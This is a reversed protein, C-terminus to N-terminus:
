RIKKKLTNIIGKLVPTEGVTYVLGDFPFDLKYEIGVIRLLESCNLVSVSTGDASFDRTKEFLGADSLRVRTGPALIGSSAYYKDRTYIQLGDSDDIPVPTSDNWRLHQVEAVSMAEMTVSYTKHDKVAENVREKAEAYLLNGANKVCDTNQLNRPNWGLLVYRDDKCPFLTANPLVQGYNDNPIVCIVKNAGASDKEINADFEMGSLMGSNFQVKLTQGTLLWSEKIGDPENALIGTTPVTSDNLIFYEYYEKKKTGDKFETEIYWADQKDNETPWIRTRGTRYNYLTQTRDGSSSAVPLGNKIEVSPYFNEDVDVKEVIQFVQLNSYGDADVYNIIEDGSMMRLRRETTENSFGQRAGINEFYAALWDSNEKKYDDTTLLTGTPVTDEFIFIVDTKTDTRGFVTMQYVDGTRRLENDLTYLSVNARANYERTFKLYPKFVVYGESGSDHSAQIECVLIFDMKNPFEDELVQSFDLTLPLTTNEYEWILIDEGADESWRFLKLKVNTVRTGQGLHSEFEIGSTMDLKVPLNGSYPQETSFNLSFNFSKETQSTYRGVLPMDIEDYFQAVDQEETYNWMTVDTRITQGGHSFPWAPTESGPDRKTLTLIKGYTDPINQTSGYLRLRTYYEKESNQPLINLAFKEANMKDGRPSSIVNGKQQKDLGTLKHGLTGMRILYNGSDDFWWECNYKDESKLKDLGELISIGEYEIFKYDLALNRDGDRAVFDQLDQEHISGAVSQGESSVSIVPYWFFAVTGQVRQPIAFGIADINNQLIDAHGQLNQTYKWKADYRVPKTSHEIDPVYALMATYNGLLKYYADFQVEYDYGGTATNYTPMYNSTLAFANGYDEQESQNFFDNYLVFDGVNLYVPEDLSFKVKIFDEGGLSWKRTNGENNGVEAVVQVAGGALRSGMRRPNSTIRYIKM